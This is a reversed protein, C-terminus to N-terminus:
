SIRHFESFIVFFDHKEADFPCFGDADDGSVQNYGTESIISWFTVNQCVLAARTMSSTMGVATTRSFHERLPTM